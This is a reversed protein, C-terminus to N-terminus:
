EGPLARSLAASFNFVPKKKRSLSFDFRPPVSSWCIQLPGINLFTARGIERAGMRAHSLKSNPNYSSIRSLSNVLGRETMRRAGESWLTMFARTMRFEPEVHVGFDWANNAPPVFTARVEDENYPGATYWLLAAIQGEKLAALCTAQQGFRYDLVDQGLLERLAENDATLEAVEFASKRRAPKVLSGLPQTYYLYRHVSGIGLRCLIVDAGYCFTSYVGLQQFSTRFWNFM